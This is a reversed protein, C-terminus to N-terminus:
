IKRDSIWKKFTKKSMIRVITKNMKEDGYCTYIDLFDGKDNPLFRKIVFCDLIRKTETNDADRVHIMTKYCFEFVAVAGNQISEFYQKMEDSNENNKMYEEMVKSVFSVLLSAGSKNRHPLLGATELTLIGNNVSLKPYDIHDKPNRELNIPNIIEGRMQMRTLKNRIIEAHYELDFLTKELIRAAEDEKVSYDEESYNPFHNIPQDSKEKPSEYDKILNKLVFGDDLELFDKEKNELNESM